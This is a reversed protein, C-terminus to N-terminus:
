TLQNEYSEFVDLIFESIRSDTGQERKKEQEQRVKEMKVVLKLVSCMKVLISFYELYFKLFEYYEFIWYFQFVM